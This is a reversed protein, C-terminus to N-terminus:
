GCVENVNCYQCLWSREREIKPPLAGGNLAKHLALARTRLFGAARDFDWVPLECPVIGNHDKSAGTLDIYFVILRSTEM